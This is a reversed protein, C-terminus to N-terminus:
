REDLRWSSRSIDSWASMSRHRRPMMVSRSPRRDRMEPPFNVRMKSVPPSQDNNPLMEYTWFPRGSARSSRRSALSGTRPAVTTPGESGSSSSGQITTSTTSPTSSPTPAEQSVAPDLRRADPKQAVFALRKTRAHKYPWNKVTFQFIEKNIKTFVMLINLTLFKNYYRKNCVYFIIIITFNFM